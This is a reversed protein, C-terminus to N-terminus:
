PSDIVPSSDCKVVVHLVQWVEKGHAVKLSIRQSVSIQSFVKCITIYHLKTKAQIIDLLNSSIM